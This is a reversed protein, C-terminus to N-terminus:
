VIPHQTKSLNPLGPPVVTKSLFYSNQQLCVLNSIDIQINLHSTSRPSSLQTLRSDLSLIAIPFIFKPDNSCIHYKSKCSKILDTPFSSEHRLVSGQIDQFCLMIQYLIHPSTVLSNLSRLPYHGQTWTFFIYWCLFSEARYFHKQSSLYMSWQIWSDPCKSLQPSFYFRRSHNRLFHRYLFHLRLIPLELCKRRFCWLFSCSTSSLCPRLPFKRNM